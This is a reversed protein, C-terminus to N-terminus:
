VIVTSVVFLVFDGFVASKLFLTSLSSPAPHIHIFPFIFFAAGTGDDSGKEECL